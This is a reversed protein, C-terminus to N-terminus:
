LALLINSIYKNKLATPLLALSKKNSLPIYMYANKAEWGQRQEREKDVTNDKPRIDGLDTESRNTDGKV